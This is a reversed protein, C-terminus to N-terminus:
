GAPATIAPGGRLARELEAIEAPKALHADFGAEASRRRDEPQAYGSLAVLRIGRLAPTARIAAAVEYGDVDPLGLDCLIVDPPAARALALGSRGDPALRARHGELRLVEVLTDGADANDEIILVDLGGPAGAQEAAPRGEAAPAGARALPLEVTFAAGRGRGGSEARVAGGHLDVLGKVLALGLGLGGSTRALSRDGQSFPDFIGPLIEPPIGLGDDAVRLVARSGATSVTLTAAGGRQTFKAANQLLNSAVQALRAGDADVWVPAPPAELALAVGARAFLERHDDVAARGVEALDVRTRRLEVKGSGIRTVDLLDDVLRALHRVQRGVVARARAGRESGPDAHDLLHLASRIPALPNRLEHSLLAIFEGKKRDAEALRAAAEKRETVDLFLTAFQRPAPSFAVVDYHRGLGNAFGEFHAPGGGLAVRGYKSLWLSNDGPLVESLLRGVVEERRLGTLREFAPNVDLFRYDVPAGADDCVIEHVAFGESMKEFLDRHRRESERLAALAARRDTFDDFITYVENPEREGERFLPVATIRIWRYAGESPNFVGMVVARVEQGTRLAVMAPHETGPFPTGDDRLNPHEVDVSAPGTLEERSRGLIREAAPNMARVRGDRAQFVVGQLM